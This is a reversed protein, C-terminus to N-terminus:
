KISECSLVTILNKSQYEHILHIYKKPLFSVGIGNVNLGSAIGLKERLEDSDKLVKVTTKFDKSEEYQNRTIKSVEDKINSAKRRELRALDQERQPLFESHFAVGIRRSNFTSYSNDYMGAAYRSFFLMLETLKYPAAVVSFNSAFLSIPTRMNEKSSSMLYMATVQEDIWMRAVGKMQYLEDLAGISPCERTYAEDGIQPLFSWNAPSYNSLLNSLCRNKQIWQNSIKFAKMEIPKLPKIILQQSILEATTNVLDMEVEKEWTQLRRSLDWTREQEFRMKSHSKNPESWYDFFERIMERGYTKVFPVLVNYFERERSKMEQEKNVRTPKVIPSSEVEKEKEPVIINKESVWRKNAAEKRKDKIKQRKEIQEIVEDSWFSESDYQFLSFSKIVSAVFDKRVCLVKSIPEIEEFLMKGGSEYLEELIYWYVGYAAAGKREILKRFVYESRNSIKHNIYESM